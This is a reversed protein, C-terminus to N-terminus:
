SHRRGGAFRGTAGSVRRVSRQDPHLRRAAPHTRRNWRIARYDHDEIDSEPIYNTYPDLNELMSDIGKRMLKGPDTSDVYYMNVERYLTSFIDLNKSVEFYDDVFASSVLTVVVTGLVLLATKLRRLNYKM